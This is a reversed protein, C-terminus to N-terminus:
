GKWTLSPLFPPFFLEGFLLMLTEEVIFVHYYSGFAYRFGRRLCSSLQAGSRLSFAIRTTPFLLPMLASFTLIRDPFLFKM